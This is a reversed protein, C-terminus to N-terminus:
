IEKGELELSDSIVQYRIRYADLASLPTIYRELDRDVLRRPVSSVLFPEKRLQKATIVAGVMEDGVNASCIVLNSQMHNSVSIEQIHKLSHQKVEESDCSQPMEEIMSAVAGKDWTGLCRNEGFRNTYRIQTDIGKMRAFDAISLASEIVSDRLEMSEDVDQGSAFFDMYVIVGPSITREFLRTMYHDSRASLKWHITKLPDGPEYDRVYAYDLSDALATKLMKFNELDSDDSFELSGLRPVRPMVCIVSSKEIEVNTEFLGLFDGIKLNKLGASFMGVHRFPVDFPVECSGKPSLTFSTVISNAVNGHMDAVFLEAQIDLLILIGKNKFKVSFPISEGRQCDVFQALEFYDISRKAGIMYLYSLGILFLVTFFPIWGLPTAHYDADGIALAMILFAGLVILCIVVKALIILKRNRSQRKKSEQRETAASKQKHKKVM